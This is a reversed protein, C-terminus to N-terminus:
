ISAASMTRQIQRLTPTGIATMSSSGSAAAISIPLSASATAIGAGTWTGYVHTCDVEFYWKGAIKGGFARVGGWLEKVDSSITLNGNSLVVHASKNVPNFTTPSEVNPPQVTIAAALTAEDVLDASLHLALPLLTIIAGLAAEDVFAAALDVPARPPVLAADLTAEDTFAVDLELALRPASYLRPEYNNWGTENRAGEFATHWTAGDDSYELRFAKPAQELWPTQMELGFEVIEVSAPFHYGIWIDCDGFVQWRTDARDFAYEAYNDGDVGSAIITGGTCVDDGGIAARM